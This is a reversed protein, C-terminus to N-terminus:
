LKWLDPPAQVSILANYCVVFSSSVIAFIGGCANVQFGEMKKTEVSTGSHKETNEHRKKTKLPRRFLRHPTMTSM